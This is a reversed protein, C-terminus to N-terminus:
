RLIGADRSTLLYASHRARDVSFHVTAWMPLLSASVNFDDFSKQKFKKNQNQSIILCITVPTM